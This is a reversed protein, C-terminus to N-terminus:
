RKEKKREGKFNCMDAIQGYSKGDTGDLGFRLALIVSERDNVLGLMDKICARIEEKSPAGLTDNIELVERFITDYNDDGIHVSEQHMVMVKRQLVRDIGV